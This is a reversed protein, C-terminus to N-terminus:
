VFKLSFNSIEGINLSLSGDVEGKGFYKKKSNDLM